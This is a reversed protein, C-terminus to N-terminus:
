EEDDEGDGFTPYGPRQSAEFPIRGQDSLKELLAELAEADEIEDLGMQVFRCNCYTFQGGCWPCIEVPCGLTHYEGVGAHCIACLEDALGAPDYLADSTESLLSLYAQNDVLGFFDLIEDHEIETGAPGLFEAGESTVLYIYESGMFTAASLLFSGQQRSVMSLQRVGDEEAEPLYSYFAFLLNLAIRDADYRELLAGAEQRYAAPVAYEMFREIEAKLEGLSIM